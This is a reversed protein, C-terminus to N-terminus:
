ISNDLDAQTLPSQNAREEIRRVHARLLERLVRSPGLKPHFLKLKEWDEAGVNLTIKVLPYASKRQM